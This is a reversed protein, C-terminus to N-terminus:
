SSLITIYNGKFRFSTQARGVVELSRVIPTEDEEPLTKKKRKSIKVKVLVGNTRSRDGCAPKCYVDDPRFRLELRRNRGSCVQFICWSIRCMFENYFHIQQRLIFKVILDPNPSYILARVTSVEKIGGLTELMKDVNNVIGPYQICILSKTLGSKDVEM